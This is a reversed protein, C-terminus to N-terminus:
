PTQRSPLRTTSTQTSITMAERLRWSGIGAEWSLLEEAEELRTNPIAFADTKVTYVDVGSEQLLKWCKNLHFNHHQLLLEKIYRFGNNLSCEASLNLVFLCKSTPAMELQWNLEADEVDKDM